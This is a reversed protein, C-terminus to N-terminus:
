CRYKSDKSIKLNKWIKKRSYIAYDIFFENMNIKKRTKKENFTRTENTVFSRFRFSHEFNQQNSLKSDRTKKKEIQRKKRQKIRSRMARYKKTFSYEIFNSVINSISSTICNSSKKCYTNNRRTKSNIHHYCFSKITWSFTFSNTTRM